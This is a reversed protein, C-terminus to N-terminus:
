KTSNSIWEACLTKDNYAEFRYEATTSTGNKEVMTKCFCHYAGKRNKPEYDYDIVAASETENGSCPTKPTLASIEQNVNELSTVSWFVFLLFLFAFVIFLLTRLM